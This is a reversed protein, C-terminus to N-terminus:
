CKSVGEADPYRFVNVSVFTKGDPTVPVNGGTSSVLITKGSKSPGHNQSLDITLILRNGDQEIDVNKIVNNM